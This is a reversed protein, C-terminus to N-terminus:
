GLTVERTFCKRVKERKLLITMRELLVKEQQWLVLCM